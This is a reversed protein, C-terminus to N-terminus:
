SNLMWSYETDLLYNKVLEPDKIEDFINKHAIKKQQISVEDFLQVGLYECILGYSVTPDKEIHDEYFLELYDLGKSKILNEIHQYQNEFRKFVELLDGKFDGYTVKEPNFNIKNIKLKDENKFHFQKNEIGRAISFVQKFYNRRKLIVFKKFGLKVLKDLYLEFDMNLFDKGLHAENIAKTEFGYFVEKTRSYRNILIQFM